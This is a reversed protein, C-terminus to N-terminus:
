VHEATNNERSLLLSALENLESIQFPKRLLSTRSDLSKELNSDSSGTIIIAPVTAGANRIHQLCSTGRKKPLDDDVVLLSTQSKHREFAELFSVGDEAELVSYNSSELSSAIIGRVHRNDDALLVLEGFGERTPFQRDSDKSIQKEKLVPLTIIFTAGKGPSSEVEIWGKHDKVIGHIIALGLGTGVGRHKTTFFPEFIHERVNEAMGVGNDAVVLKMVEKTKGLKSGTRHDVTRSMSIRLIGGDPMADRANIVLNMLVQQLQTGDALVWVEEDTIELELDIVAPLVRRLLGFSNDVLENMRTPEKESATKHGFALLSRTVGTAQKAAEEVGNLLNLADHNEPLTRRALTSYGTIAMLLNNFDHAVGSALQGVADLRQAHRLEAELRRREKEAAQRESLDRAVIMVVHRDGLVTVLGHIEMLIRRNSKSIYVAETVMSGQTKIRNMVTSVDSGSEDAAQLDMLSLKLLEERTYGLSKCAVDNVMFFPNIVHESGYEFVLISDQISDFLQRYKRESERLADEARKRATIDRFTARVVKQGDLEIVSASYEVPFIEGTKKMVDTQLQIAGFKLIGAFTQEGLEATDTAYIAPMGKKEIENRSYGFLDLFKDNVDIVTRNLGLLVIGETAQEFSLRFREESKRLADEASRRATVDDFVAVLEGSPLRYVRNEFSATLRGDDYRIVPLNKPKGTRWVDKFVDFLGMDVVRPFIERVEKGIYEVGELSANRRGAANVDKFVFRNGNDQVEYVAVGSTMNNFLERYRSEGARVAQEALKQETVDVAISLVGPASKNSIRFPVRRVQFFRRQGHATHISFEKTEVREGTRFGLDDHKLLQKADLGVEELEEPLRGVLKDIPIGFIEATKRNAMACRGTSDQAVIMAPVADLMGRLRAESEELAKQAGRIMSIDDVVKMFGVAKGDEGFVPIAQVRVEIASGDDRVALTECESQEGLTMAREGPCDVCIAERKKFERYCKRGVLEGASKRFIEAKKNNVMLISYTSDILAIGLPINEVLLRYRKESARLNEEARKYATIDEGISQYAVVRGKNDFMARDTWRHWCIEGDNRVVKHECTKIPENITLSSISSIVLPRDSEPILDLFSTGILQDRSKNFYECYADNVYTIEGDPFFRCILGPSNETLARYASESEKLADEFRRRNSIGVALTLIMVAVVCLSAQLLILSTNLTETVFPGTGNVTGWIAMASVLATGVAAERQGFRLAVLLLIPFVLQAAVGSLHAPLHGGFELVWIAVLVALIVALETIKLISFDLMKWRRWGLFVPFVILVGAFDGFWWTFLMTRYVEWSALKLVCISAPGILCSGLCMIAGVVILAFVNQPKELVPKHSIFKRFLHAGAVAELTSGVGIMSSALLVTHISADARGGFIAVNACIAGLFVGPWVGYGFILISALAVGTPPWVPSAGTGEFALLLGVRASIYYIVGVSVVRLLWRLVPAYATRNLM